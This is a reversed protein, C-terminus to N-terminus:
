EVSLAVFRPDGGRRILLLLSKRGADRAETVRDTLDQVRVVKQQGAETILDGQRLGKTYADSMADVDMVVLGESGVPLGLAEVDAPTLEAVTMGLVQGQTPVEPAAPDTTMAADQSEATERRGLTVSLTETKGDRLVVVSVAEGVPADAVRRVLDRTDAVEAGAFSQIVDGAM